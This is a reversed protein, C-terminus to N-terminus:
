EETATLLDNGIMLMDPDNWHGKGAQSASQINNLFNGKMSQWVNDKRAIDQTTRWSNSIEPAWQTVNENGWNCISFYIEHEQMALAQSM